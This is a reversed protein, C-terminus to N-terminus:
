SQPIRGTHGMEPLLAGNADYAAIGNALVKVEYVRVGMKWLTAIDTNSIIQARFDHGTRSVVLGCDQGAVSIKLIWNIGPVDVRGIPVVHSKLTGFTFDQTNVKNDKLDQLSEPLSPVPEADGDLFVVLIFDNGSRDTTNVALLAWDSRVDFLGQIKLINAM